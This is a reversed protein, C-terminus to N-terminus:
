QGRTSSVSARGETSTRAAETEECLSMSRHRHWVARGEPSESKLSLSRCPLFYYCYLQSRPIIKYLLFHNFKNFTHVDRNNLMQLDVELPTVSLFHSIFIDAISPSSVLRDGAPRTGKEWPLM